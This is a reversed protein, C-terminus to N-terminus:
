SFIILSSCEYNLLNFVLLTIAQYGLLNGPTISLVFSLNCISLLIMVAFINIESFISINKYFYYYAFLMSLWILFSIFLLLINNKISFFIDSYIFNIPNYFRHFILVLTSLLVILFIIFNINLFYDLLENNYIFIGFLLFLFLIAFDFIREWILHYIIFLKNSYFNNLWTVRYLDGVRM